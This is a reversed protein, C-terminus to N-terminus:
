KNPLKLNNDDLKKQLGRLTKIKRTIKINEPHRIIIDFSNSTLQDCM